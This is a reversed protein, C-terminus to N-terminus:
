SEAYWAERFHAWGGGKRAFVDFRISFAPGRYSSLFVRAAIEIRLRKRADVTMAPDAVAGARRTRVEVFVLEVRGNSLTEELILDIEGARCRFNRAILKWGQNELWKAVDSEADLGSALRSESRRESRNSPIM